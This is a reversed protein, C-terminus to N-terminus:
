ATDVDSGTLEDDDQDDRQDDHARALQGIDSGRQALADALEALGRRVDLLRRAELRGGGGGGAVAAGGGRRRRGGHGRRAAGAVAAGRDGGIPAGGHRGCGAPRGRRRRGSGGVAAAGSAAAAQGASIVGTSSCGVGDAYGGRVRRVRERHGFGLGDLVAGHGRARSARGSAGAGAGAGRRPSIVSTSWRASSRLRSTLTTM